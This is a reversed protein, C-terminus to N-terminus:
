GRTNHIRGAVASLPVCGDGGTFSHVITETWSGTSPILEFVVECGSVGGDTTTGYLDGVGKWYRALTRSRAM